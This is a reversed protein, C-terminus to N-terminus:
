NTTPPKASQATPKSRKVNFAMVPKAFGKLKLDPIREADIQDEAAAFARASMLIQGPGAEDSLRSALNLATGVAGYEHRGEFGITGITAFGLSIGVTFDLQHGRHRWNTARRVMADRMEIAMAAASAAPNPVPYPDNFWAMVGDGAFWGVTAEHRALIEGVTEHFERIVGMVEEPETTESFATWGALDAFVVAIERRHNELLADAGSSLAVEALQQPLFRRLRGLREIEAVQATVRTELDRNLAALETAQRAITDHSQKIRILSRVRALLEPPNLPKAVFDDAGADLARVREEDEASTVMIIPLFATAPDARIRRCVEYGDIDPMRIDLLVVDPAQEAVRQLAEAGSGATVVDYGEPTLLAELLRVNRAVDDVVLVRGASTM